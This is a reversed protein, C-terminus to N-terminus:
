SLGCCFPSYPVYFIWLHKFINALPLSYFMPKLFRVRLHEKLLFKERREMERRQERRSREEERQKERMLREEEKRRERDQREM